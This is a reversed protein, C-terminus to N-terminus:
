ERDEDEEPNDFKRRARMLGTALDESRTQQEERQDVILQDIESQSWGERRLSTVLPIGSRQDIERIEARTRPQVSEPVAFTIEISRAPAKVGEMLLMLSIVDQWVPTFIDIRSQAKDNLPAELAILAEGSIQTGTTSFFFHKPTSTISSVANVQREIPKMYRDPDTGELEGVSVTGGEKTGAPISWIENPANKLKGQIDADSIIYRQRFAGFESVIMLDSVLKNIADQSTIVNKLDSKIKRRDPRFHFVPIVEWENPIENEGEGVLEGEENCSKFQTWESLQEIADTSYLELHDPYFLTLRTKKGTEWWKAAFKKKRPNEDDYFIHVLRPDNYFGETIGEENKWVIYFSEGVVGAMQHVIDSELLVENDELLQHLKDQDGSSSGTVLEKLRQVAARWGSEVDEQESPLEVGLLNVRNYCSDIVVACWNETFDTDLSKFIDKFRSTNYKLEQNGDYYDILAKHSDTKGKLTDFARQLDSKTEPM